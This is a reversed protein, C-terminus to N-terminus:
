TERRSAVSLVLTRDSRNPSLDHSEDRSPSATRLRGDRCASQSDFTAKGLYSSLDQRGYHEPLPHKVATTHDYTPPVVHPHPHFMHVEPFWSPPLINVPSDHLRWANTYTTRPPLDAPPTEPYLHPESYTTPTVDHRLRKRPPYGDRTSMYTFRPHATLCATFSFNLHAGLMQRRDDPLQFSNKNMCAERFGKAFPNRAIKLRTIEQNQYATVAMFSSQPFIFTMREPSDVDSGTGELVRQVHLVPQFMQCSSSRGANTLKVKEFSVAQSMLTGGFVPSDSHVHTRDAARREEEGVGAVMWKSSQYVYRYKNTGCQSFELSVRYLADPKLGRIYVRYAPFMRRGTKTIIMETHLHHFAQWLDAQCLEASVGHVHYADAFHAIELCTRQRRRQQGTDSFRVDQHERNLKHSYQGVM